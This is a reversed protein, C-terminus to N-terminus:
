GKKLKLLNKFLMAVTLPGVGGPVPTFLSAKDACAPLADGALKGGAESTAADLIVVGDKIMEPALLGPVGAGCVVIDAELTLKSIDGTHSDAIDVLAGEQSLWVAAPQGVLKGRGIVVAKKGSPEINNRKLIEALAGVVPPLVKTEATLADVDKDSPILNLIKEANIEKPLPLQIVIGDVSRDVALREVAEALDGESITQEFEYITVRAGIEEGFKKKIATFKVSAPDEGVLVIALSLMRFDRAGEKLEAKIEDRIEKGDIIM